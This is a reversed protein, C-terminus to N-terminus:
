KTLGKLTKYCAKAELLIGYSYGDGGIEIWNGGYDSERHWKFTHDLRPKFGLMERRRYESIPLNAEKRRTYRM